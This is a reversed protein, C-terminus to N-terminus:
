TALGWLYRPRYTVEVGVTSGMDDARGSVPVADLSQAVFVHNDRHPSLAPWGGWGGPTPVMQGSSAMAVSSAAGDLLVVAAGTGVGPVPQVLRLSADDHGVLLAAAGIQLEGGPTVRRASVTYVTPSSVGLASGDALPYPVAGLDVWGRSNARLVVTRSAASVSGAAAPSSAVVQLAVAGADATGSMQVLLRRRGTPSAPPTFTALPAWSGALSATTTRYSGGAWASSSVAGTLASASWSAGAVMLPAVSGVGVALGPFGGTGTKTVRVTAPALMEGAVPPVEFRMPNTGASPTNSVEWTGAVVEAGVMYPDATLTLTALWRDEPAGNRIHEWGLPSVSGPDFRVWTPASTADIQVRLWGERTVARAVVGLAAAAAARTGRVMLPLAVARPGYYADGESEPAGLSFDDSVTRVLGANLDVRVSAAVDPADVLQLLPYSM